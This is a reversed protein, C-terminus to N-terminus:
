LDCHLESWRCAPYFGTQLWSETTTTYFHSYTVIYYSTPYVKRYRALITAYCVALLYM